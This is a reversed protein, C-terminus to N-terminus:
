TRSGCTRCEPNRKLEVHRTRNDTMDMYFMRSGLPEGFGTILKIAEIAALCGITGSVAGLVGFGFEQWDDVDKEVMCDLCATKGPNVTFLYGTMGDMAAEIMPINQQVCARNLNKREYFTPRASVAAQCGKILGATNGPLLRVNHMETEMDPNLKRFAEAAIDVRPEGIRACDMLIQRNMNTETLNGSHAIVLKGIGAMALYAAATGGLGGIGGIFVCANKLRLQAEEGFNEIIMQRKYRRFYNEM